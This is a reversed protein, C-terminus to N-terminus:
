GDAASHFDSENFNSVPPDLVCKLILHIKLFKINECRYIHLKREEPIYRCTGLIESLETILFHRCFMIYQLQTVNWVFPINKYTNSLLSNQHETFYV